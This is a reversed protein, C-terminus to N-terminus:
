LRHKTKRAVNTPTRSELHQASLDSMWACFSPHREEKMGDQLAKDADLWGLKMCHLMVPAMRELDEPLINKDNCRLIVPITMIDKLKKAHPLGNIRDLYNIRAQTDMEEEVFWVFLHVGLMERANKDNCLEPWLLEPYPWHGSGLSSNVLDRSVKEPHLRWGREYLEPICEFANEILAREIMQWHPETEPTPINSPMLFAHQDPRALMDWVFQYPSSLAM